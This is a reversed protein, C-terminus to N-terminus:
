ATILIVSSRLRYISLVTCLQRVEGLISYMHYALMIIVTLLYIFILLYEITLYIYEALTPHEATAPYQYLINQWHQISVTAPYLSM